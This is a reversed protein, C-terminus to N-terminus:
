QMLVKQQYRTCLPLHLSQHLSQHCLTINLVILPRQIMDWDDTIEMDEGARRLGSLVSEAYLGPLLISILNPTM